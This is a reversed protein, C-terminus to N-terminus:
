WVRCPKPSVMADGAKCSYAKQFEPSNQVVGNVRYKGPSHPDIIALQRAIQDTQNQCWIQAYGIFFRQAPTYGDIPLNMKDGMIEELALYALHLGGNDATNEGLTLKGNLKVEGKDDKVATFGSYEDAICQAREEFKKGDEATWWDTLNGQADFKRGQDDFGHTLEHGIVVGIGGLNVADDVLKSFFPPQLIGAPFNINNEEANYYANVTPPTMGWETRDVPKNLKNHNRDIEFKAARRSNGLLDDRTVKVSSYDKWQDPYGIKNMIAQLKIFAQKKTEPGMWDITKIDNDMQQEIAKVMKLTREKGEPGFTQAVYLQGLAEGLSRNTLQTCRKWRAEPEKAGTMFRGSFDFNEDFFPQSLWPAASKVVKWRLYTKWNDLPVSAILPNVQKFFDPNSINVRDFTGVGTAPFFEPFSFNPAMQLLESVQVIHDSNKPDRRMVRDMSAKALQTEIEMVTKADNTAQEANEGMLQFMKQVHVIYKERTEVSKADDKIYYDRDPLTIGGQDVDALHKTANHQDVGVGFRFLAPVSQDQLKAIELMLQKANAVKAIDDLQAQIPKTGLENAKKEDMCAAYFDGVKQEIATHKGPTAVKELIGHLVSQNYEDLENFRGWRSKDNPIPNAKRWGGCAYQYFDDCPKVTTDFASKDFSVPAKAAKSDTQAVVAASALVIVALLKLSRM